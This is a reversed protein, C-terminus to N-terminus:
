LMENLQFFDVNGYRAFSRRHCDIDEKEELQAITENNMKKMLSMTKGRVLPFPCPKAKRKSPIEAETQQRNM